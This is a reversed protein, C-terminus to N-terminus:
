GRRHRQGAPRGAAGAPDRRAAPRRLRARRIVIQAPASRTFSLFERALAPLRRAPLYLFLPATLPYDETKIAARGGRLEFGCPGTLRLPRAGGSRAYRAVGLALPDRAVADALGRGERHRRIEGGAGAGLPAAPSGRAGQSLGSRADPLHLVVPADPGGLAAWSDIGGALVDALAALSIAEVPNGQAVVPIMADLALVRSRNAESLDGLGAERAAAREEPRIERLAMVMDAEDALLDEFGGETSTLHFAFRGVVRGAAPDSLLYQFRRAGLAVREAQLGNRQAFAEILAPMLVEAMITAGSVRLEAVFDTLSPCAPGDCLVGSADVTLEGYRTEIRYFAGDFGLLTGSLEIGGDRSRLAIDQASLPAGAIFLAAFIAARLLGM